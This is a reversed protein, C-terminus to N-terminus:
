YEFRPQYLASCAASLALYVMSGAWVRNILVMDRGKRRLHEVIGSVSVALGAFIPILVYSGVFAGAVSDAQLYVVNLGIAGSTFLMAMMTRLDYRDVATM